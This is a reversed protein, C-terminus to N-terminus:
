PVIRIEISPSIMELGHKDTCASRPIPPTWLVLASTLWISCSNSGLVLHIHATKLSKGWAKMWASKHWKWKEKSKPWPSLYSKNLHFMHVSLIKITILIFVWKSPSKHQYFHQIYDTVTLVKKTIHFISLLQYHHSNNDSCDQHYRIHTFYMDCNPLTM